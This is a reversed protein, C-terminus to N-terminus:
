GAATEVLWYHMEGKSKRVGDLQTVKGAMRSFHTPKCMCVFRKPDLAPPFDELVFTHTGTCTPACCFLFLQVFFVAFWVRVTEAYLRGTSCCFTNDQECKAVLALHTLCNPCPTIHVSTSYGISWKLMFPSESNTKTLSRLDYITSYVLDYAFVRLQKPCPM